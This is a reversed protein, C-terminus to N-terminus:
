ENLNYKKYELELNVESFNIKKTDVKNSFHTQYSKLSSELKDIM